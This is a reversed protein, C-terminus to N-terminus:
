KSHELLYTNLLEIQRQLSQATHDMRDAMSNLQGSVHEVRERLQGVDSHNPLHNLQTEIKVLRREVDAVIAARTEDAKLVDGIRRTLMGSSEARMQELTVFRKEEQAEHHELREAFAIDFRRFVMKTLGWLAASIAAAATCAALIAQYLEITISVSNM